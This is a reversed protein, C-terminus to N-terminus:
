RDPVICTNYDIYRSLIRKTPDEFLIFKPNCKKIINVSFMWLKVLLLLFLSPAGDHTILVHSYLDLLLNSNQGEGTISIMGLV